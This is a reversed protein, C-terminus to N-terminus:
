IILEISSYIKLSNDDYQVLYDKVDGRDDDDRDLLRIKINGMKNEESKLNFRDHISKCLSSQSSITEVSKKDEKERDTSM